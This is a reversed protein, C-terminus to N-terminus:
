KIRFFLNQLGQLGIGLGNALKNLQTTMEVEEISRLLSQPAFPSIVLGTSDSIEPRETPHNRANTSIVNAINGIKFSAPRM